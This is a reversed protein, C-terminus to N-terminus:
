IFNLNRNFIDKHFPFIHVTMVIKITGSHKWIDEMLSYHRKGMGKCRFTCLSHWLRIVTFSLSSSFNRMVAATCCLTDSVTHRFVYSFVRTTTKKRNWDTPIHQRMWELRIHHIFPGGIWVDVTLARVNIGCFRGNYLTQGVCLISSNTREVFRFFFVTLFLWMHSRQWRSRKIDGITNVNVHVCTCVCDFRDM